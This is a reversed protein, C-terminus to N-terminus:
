VGGCGFDGAFIGFDFVDIDGDGDLDGNTFPAHGSTGFNGAFVGFDLVDTDGDGDFDGICIVPPVFAGVFMLAEYSEASGLNNYTIEAAVLLGGFATADAPTSTTHGPHQPQLVHAANFGASAISDSDALVLRDISYNTASNAGTFVDGEGLILELQYGSPTNVAKLLGTRPAGLTPDYEAVFYINGLLDAGPASISAPPSAVLQGITTGGPGDLVDQGIWAAATWVPGTPTFRAVGIFDGATPDTGTAALIPQANLVDHGIAVLGSPGRFSTQSLYQLFEADGAANLTPFGPIPSPLTASDTAVVAGAGDVSFVNLSDVLGGGSLSRALSAVAVVGGFDTTAASPPNGRHADLSPDLHTLTPSGGNHNYSGSFDLLLSGPGGASTPLVAPTNTTVTGANILFTSASSDFAVNSAGSKFIGNMLTSRNPVNVRVINEGLIQNSGSGNFGDARVHLQGSADIAGLSITGTDETAENVRSQAAVSRRVFLRQLNTANLGVVLGVANTADANLDSLGAGFQIDYGSISVSSPASNQPAVGAGRTTWVSYSRNPFSLNTLRDPSIAASGLAMTNFLVDADRSAKSLPAITFGTGWTSQFQQLDLVYRVTQSGPPNSTTLAYASLADGGSTTLDAVSDQALVNSALVLAAFPPITKPIM